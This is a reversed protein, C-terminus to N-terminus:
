SARRKFAFLVNTASAAELPADGGFDPVFARFLGHPPRPQALAAWGPLGGALAERAWDVPELGFRRASKLLVGEFVLYEENQTTQTDATVTDRIAVRCANGFPAPEGEWRRELTIAPTARRDRGGLLALLRVGDPCTGVFYGGPALNAAVTELLTHLARESGAFYQIAFFCSVAAFPRDGGFRRVAVGLDDCRQFDIAANTSTAGRTGQLQAHRRRAEEIESASIDVAVVHGAGARRWKALDGGRGCCLDLLREGPRLVACLARLKVENHLEKLKWAAGGTRAARAEKASRHSPAVAAVADYHAEPAAARSM